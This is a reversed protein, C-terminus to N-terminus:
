PIPEPDGFLMPAHQSAVGLSTVGAITGWNAPRCDASKLAGGGQVKPVTRAVRIDRLEIFIYPYKDM